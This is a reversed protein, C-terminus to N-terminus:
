YYEIKLTGVATLAGTTPTVAGSQVLKALLTM